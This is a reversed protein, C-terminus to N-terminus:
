RKASARSDMFERLRPLMAELRAGCKAADVRMPVLGSDLGAFHRSSGPSELGPVLSTQACSAALMTAVEQGLLFEVVTAAGSPNPGGALQSLTNPLVLTGFAPTANETSDLLVVRVKAGAALAEAADDSDTLGFAVRGEVVLRKVEGNSAAFRAGRDSLDKLWVMAADEGIAEALAAVHYSTTGFLPNALAVRPAIAPDSLDLLRSPASTSGAATDNVLLVRLRASFGIWHSDPDRFPAAVRNTVEQPFATTAGALKVQVARAPDGSWFLDGDPSDKKAIMRAVLGTGKAEETDYVGVVELGLAESARRLVPEAFVRDVSSYVVVRAKKAERTCAALALGGCLLVLWGIRSMARFTLSGGTAAFDGCPRM